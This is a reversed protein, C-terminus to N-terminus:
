GPKDSELALARSRQTIFKIEPLQSTLPCFQREQGLELAPDLATIQIVGAKLCQTEDYNCLM